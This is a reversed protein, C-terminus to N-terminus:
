VASDSRAKHALYTHVYLSKSELKTDHEWLKQARGAATRLLVAGYLATGSRSLLAVVIRYRDCFVQQFCRLSSRGPPSWVQLDFLSEQVLRHWVFQFVATQFHQTHSCAVVEGPLDYKYNNHQRCVFWHRCLRPYAWMLMKNFGGEGGLMDVSVPKLDCCQKMSEMSAALSRERFPSVCLPFKTCLLMEAAASCKVLWQSVPVPSHFWM